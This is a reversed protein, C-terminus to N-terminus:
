LNNMEDWSVTTHNYYPMVAKWQTLNVPQKLIYFPHEIKLEDLKNEESNLENENDFFISKLFSKIKNLYTNLLNM